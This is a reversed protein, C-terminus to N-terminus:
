GAVLVCGAAYVLAFLAIGGILASRIAVVPRLVPAIAGVVGSAVLMSLAFLGVAIGLRPMFPILTHGGADIIVGPRPYSMASAIFSLVGTATLGAAIWFRLMSRIRNEGAPSFVGVLVFSSLGAFPLILFIVAAVALLGALHLGNPSIM